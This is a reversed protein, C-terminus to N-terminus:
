SPMGTRPPPPYLPIAGPAGTEQEPSCDGQAATSLILAPESCERIDWANKCKEQEQRGTFLCSCTLLVAYDATLGIM